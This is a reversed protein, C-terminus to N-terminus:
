PQQYVADKLYAALNAIEVDTLPQAMMIMLSSNPGVEIGDRYTELMATVYSVEKGSIKPYSAAGKGAMGHCNICSQKYRAEGAVPDGSSVSSSFASMLLIVAFYRLVRM